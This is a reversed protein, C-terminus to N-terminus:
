VDRDGVTMYWASADVIRDRAPAREPAYVVATSADPRRFFGFRRLRALDPHSELTIVSISRLERRRMERIFEAFLPGWATDIGVLWDAVHAVGDEIWFALYGAIRGSARVVLMEYPRVPSRLFRWQLYAADRVLATGLRHGGREDLEDFEPGLPGGDLWEVDLRRPVLWDMGAYRLGAAAVRDGWAQGTAVRLPRAHRVMRGLPMHGVKLHVALMRENPHAYLFASAGQDV